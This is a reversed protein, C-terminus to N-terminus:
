EYGLLKKVGGTKFHITLLAEGLKVSLSFNTKLNNKALDVLTTLFPLPPNDIMPKVSEAGMQIMPLIASTPTDLPLPLPAQTLLGSFEEASFKL